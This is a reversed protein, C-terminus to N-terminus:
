SARAVGAQARKRCEESCFFEEQGEIVARIARERPLFTNCVRDRVLAGGKQPAQTTSSSRSPRFLAAVGRLILRVVFLILIVRLFMILFSM